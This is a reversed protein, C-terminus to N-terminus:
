VIDSIQKAIEEETLGIKKLLIIKAKLFDEGKDSYYAKGESSQFRRRNDEDLVRKIYDVSKQGDALTPKIISAQSDKVSEAIKSNYEEIQKRTEAAKSNALVDEVTAKMFSKLEDLSLSIKQDAATSPMAASDNQPQSTLDVPEKEDSM